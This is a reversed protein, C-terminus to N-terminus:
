GVALVRTGRASDVINGTIRQIYFRSFRQENGDVKSRLEREPRLVGEGRGRIWVNLLGPLVGAATRYRGHKPHHTTGKRHEDGRDVKSGLHHEGGPQLLLPQQSVPSRNNNDM